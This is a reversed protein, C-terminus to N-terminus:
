QNNFDKECAAVYMDWHKNTTRLLEDKSLIATSDKWKEKFTMDLRTKNKGLAKVKYEGTEDEEDGFYDLHWGKSPTLTVLNVGEKPTGDAGTYHSIYVSRKRSRELIKKVASGGTIKNDDERFDTCWEYVHKLPANFIKSVKYTEERVYNKSM